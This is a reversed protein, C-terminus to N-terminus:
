KHLFIRRIVEVILAVTFALVLGTGCIIFVTIFASLLVDIM